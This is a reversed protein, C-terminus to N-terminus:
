PITRHLVRASVSHAFAHQFDAGRQKSFALLSKFAAALM